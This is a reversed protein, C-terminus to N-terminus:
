GEWEQPPRVLPSPLFSRGGRGWSPATSRLPLNPLALAFPLVWQTPVQNAASSRLVGMEHIESHGQVSGKAPPLHDGPHLSRFQSTQRPVAEWGQEGMLTFLCRHGLSNCLSPCLHPGCARDQTAPSLIHLGGGSGLGPTLCHQPTSSCASFSTASSPESLCHRSRHAPLSGESAQLGGLDRWGGNGERQSGM